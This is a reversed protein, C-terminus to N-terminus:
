NAVTSITGDYGDVRIVVETGRVNGEEDWSLILRSGTVIRGDDLLSWESTVSGSATDPEDLTIRVNEPLVSRPASLAVEFTIQPNTANYTTGASRTSISGSLLTGTEDGGPLMMYLTAALVVTIAVMLITAIVPSVAEQKKWIQRRKM